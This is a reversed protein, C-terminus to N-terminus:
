HAACLLCKLIEASSVIAVIGSQEDVCVLQSVEAIALRQISLSLPDNPTCTHLRVSPSPLTALCDGVRRTLDDTQSTSALHRLDRASLIDVLMGQEDVVPIAHLHLQSLLALSEALTASRPVTTPAPCHPLATQALTAAFMQSSEERFVSSTAIFALVQEPLLVHLLATPCSTDGLPLCELGHQKLMLCGHYISDDISAMVFGPHRSRSLGHLDRLQCQGIAEQADGQLSSQEADMMTSGPAASLARHTFLVVDVLDTCTFIDVFRQQFSDWVPLCTAGHNSLAELAYKMPLDADLTVVKGHAPLLEFLEHAKLCNV